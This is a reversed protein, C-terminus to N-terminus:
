LSDLITVDLNILGNSFVGNDLSVTVPHCGNNRNVNVRGIGEIPDVIGYMALNKVIIEAFSQEDCDQFYTNYNEFLDIFEQSNEDFEVEFQASTVLNLKM